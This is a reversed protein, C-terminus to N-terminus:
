PTDPFGFAPFCPEKPLPAISVDPPADTGGYMESQKRPLRTWLCLIVAGHSGPGHTIMKSVKLCWQAIEEDQIEGPSLLQNAWSLDPTRGVLCSCGPCVVSRPAKTRHIFTCNGYFTATSPSSPPWRPLEMLKPGDLKIM